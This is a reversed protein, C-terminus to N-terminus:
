LTAVLGDIVVAVVRYLRRRHAQMHLSMLAFM